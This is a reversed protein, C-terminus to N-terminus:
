LGVNLEQELAERGDRELKSEAPRIFPQPSTKPSGYEVYTAYDVYTGTIGAKGGAKVSIDIEYNDSEDEVRITSALNGTKKPCIEAAYEGAKNAERLLIEHAQQHVKRAIPSLDIDNM